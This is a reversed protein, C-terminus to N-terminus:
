RRIKLEVLYKMRIQSTNYVIYENYLLYNSPEKEELKGIPIILGDDKIVHTETDPQWRGCGMVSHFGDPAKLYNHANVNKHSNGLAVECLLMFGVGDMNASIYGASKSSSDAFYIGNGFMKGNIKANPNLMFCSSLIGAINEIRTGHWLLQRNHLNQFEKFKRIEEAKNIEYINIINLGIHHTSGYNNGLYKRIENITQQDNVLQIQTNLESYQLYANKHQSKGIYSIYHLDELVQQQASIDDDTDILKLARNGSSTPIASYFQSNLEILDDKSGKNHINTAIKQLINYAFDIQAKSLAGLPLKKHDIRHEAAYRNYCEADYILGMLHTLDHSLVYKGLSTKDNDKIAFKTAIFHYKNKVPSHVEFRNDWYIGTREYFINKFENIAEDKNLFCDVNANGGYGVRGSRTYIYFADNNRELMHMIFSKNSNTKLDSLNLMCCYPLGTVDEYVFGTQINKLTDPCHEDLELKSM